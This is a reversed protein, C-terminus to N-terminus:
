IGEYKQFLSSEIEQIFPLAEIAGIKTCVLAGVKNAFTVIDRLLEFDNNISKIHDTNALRFLTAGVFADGAGTSDISTVPISKVIEKREGNSLMTGRKGLTVAIIKAGIAHLINVGEEYDKTGTIIELEDDSVKVFDSLAIAQKTMTVFENVRGKWLDGRYNPDFSIFQGLDRANSILKLYTTCFPDSLMATASGFHLIKAESIKDQNIDELTLLADAGRHFVFDREGNKKLSVFALTTAAKEDMVLMSTDVNVTNLTQKLFYGFPDKGVKGSFAADGGLKAIAASVNAPAGGASKLFQHGEILGVDIDTCFFDILLEGVCVVSVNNSRNNQM